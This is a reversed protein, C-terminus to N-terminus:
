WASTNGSEFGDFFLLISPSDSLCYIHKATYCTVPGTFDDTWNVGSTNALGHTGNYGPLTQWDNCNDATKTGDSATGTWVGRNAHYVGYEDVNIPANFFGDTLDALNQAVLVWDRRVWPGDYTFRTKADATSDSIWARFSEPEPLGAADALGRCTDDIFNLESKSPLIWIGPTGVSHLSSLFALRGAQSFSLPPGVGTELCILTGSYGCGMSGWHTWSGTTQDLSGLLASGTTSTWDLCTTASNDLTGATTTATFSHASPAFYGNEDLWLPTYIKGNVGLMEDIAAAFPQGDTRVWPGAAVPLSAQGCSQDKKGEFGHIHCYADTTSDSLWARFGAPNSLGANLALTTCISDAAALGEGAAGPWSSLVGNGTVSTRFAVREQAQLASAGPMLPMVLLCVVRTQDMVRM